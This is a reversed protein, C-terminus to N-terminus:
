EATEQRPHHGFQLESHARFIGESRNMLEDYEGEEVVQGKQLVYIRDAKRVTSLRHAIIISTRGLMLHDLAQQVMRESESDLSSTAEDLILIRPNRLIARAIAVRQRQGGSLQTGREGVRTEYGEPFASIFEHANAQRAAEMIEERTAGPRGYEINEAISGGFLLVEQPVLAMQGRLAGLPIRDIAEGDVRIEGSAHAHLRLLLSVVTSKGAGSPGVLAIRQGPQAKLSVGRLVPTEPRSAYAFGVNDFEIEGALGRRAEERAEPPRSALAEEDPERMMERVRHTSGLLRQLDAYVRALSGIGGGIFMTYLVFQTLEGLTMEGSQVLRAGNFIVLVISGFAGLTMFAGFASQVRATGLAEVVGAELRDTYRASEFPENTFAKVVAIAQFTEDVVVNTEALKQQVERSRKRIRRGFTVAIAAILPVSCLMVVTLRPSTLFILILGGTLSVVQSLAQPIAGTLSSQVQSLDATVRSALEGVRHAGFFTMPLRLLRSYTESRLRALSREGVEAIWYNQFYYSFAQVALVGFMLAGVQNLTLGELVRAAFGTGGTSKSSAVDILRGTLLPFLLGCLSSLLLFAMAAAFKGRYSRGHALLEFVERWSGGGASAPVNLDPTNSYRRGFAM